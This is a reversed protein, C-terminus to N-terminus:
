GKRSRECRSSKEPPDAKGEGRRRPWCEIQGSSFRPNPGLGAHFLLRPRRRRSDEARAVARSGRRHRAAARRGPLASAAEDGARARRRAPRLRLNRLDACKSQAAAFSEVFRLWGSGRHSGCGRRPWQGPPRPEKQKRVASDEILPRGRRAPWHELAAHALRSSPTRLMKRPRTSDWASSLFALGPEM